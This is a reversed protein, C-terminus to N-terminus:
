VEDFEIIIMVVKIPTFEKVTIAGREILKLVGGNWHLCEATCKDLFVVAKEVKIFVENWWFTSVAALAPTTM